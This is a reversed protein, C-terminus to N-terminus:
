SLGLPSPSFLCCEHVCFTWFELLTTQVLRNKVAANLWPKNWCYFGLLAKLKRVPYDIHSTLSLQDIWVGLYKYSSVKWFRWKKWLKYYIKNILEPSHWSNPRKQMLSWSWSISLFSFSFVPAWECCSSATTYLIADDAYLHFRVNSSQSGLNKLFITFLVPALISGQLVGKSISITGLGNLHM